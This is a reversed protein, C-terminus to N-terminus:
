SDILWGVGGGGFSMDLLRAVVSPLTHLPKVIVSVSLILNYSTANLLIKMSECHKTKM